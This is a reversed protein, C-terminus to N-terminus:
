TKGVLHLIVLNGLAFRKLSYGFLATHRDLLNALEVMDCLCHTQTWTLDQAVRLRKLGLASITRAIVIKGNTNSDPM